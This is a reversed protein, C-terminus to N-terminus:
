SGIYLSELGITGRFQYFLPEHFADKGYSTSLRLSNSPEDGRMEYRGSKFQSRKERILFDPKERYLVVHYCIDPLFFFHDEGRKISIGRSGVLFAVGIRLFSSSCPVITTSRHRVQKIRKRSSFLHSVHM